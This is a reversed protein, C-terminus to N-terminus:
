QLVYLPLPKMIFILIACTYTGKKLKFPLDNSKKIENKKILVFRTNSFFVMM